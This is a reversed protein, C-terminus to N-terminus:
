PQFSIAGRKINKYISPPAAFWRESPQSFFIIESCTKVSGVCSSPWMPTGAGHALQSAGSLTKKKKKIGALTFHIVVLAFTGSMVCVYVAAASSM